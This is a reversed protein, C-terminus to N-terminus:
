YRTAAGNATTLRSQALPALFCRKSGILPVPIGRASTLGARYSQKLARAHPREVLTLNLPSDSRLDSFALM